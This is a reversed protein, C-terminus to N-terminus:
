KAYEDKDVVASAGLFLIQSLMILILGAFQANVRPCDFSLNTVDQQAQPWQLCFTVMPTTIPGMSLYIFSSTFVFTHLHNLIWPKVVAILSAFHFVWILIGGWALELVATSVEYQLNPVGLAGATLRISRAISSRSM